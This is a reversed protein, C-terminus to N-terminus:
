GKLHFLKISRDNESNYADVKEIFYKPFKAAGIALICDAPIDTKRRNELILRVVQTQRFELLAGRGKWHDYKHFDKSSITQYPIITEVDVIEEFNEIDSKELRKRDLVIFNKYSDFYDGRHSKGLVRNFNDDCAFFNISPIKSPTEGLSIGHGTTGKFQWVIEETNKNLRINEKFYNLNEPFYFHFLLNNRWKGFGRTWVQVEQVNSYKM